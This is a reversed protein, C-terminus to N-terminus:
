KFFPYVLMPSSNISTPIGCTFINLFRHGTQENGGQEDREQVPKDGGMPQRNEGYPFFVFPPKVAEHSEGELRSQRMGYACYNYSQGHCKQSAFEVCADVNRGCGNGAGDHYQQADPEDEPM